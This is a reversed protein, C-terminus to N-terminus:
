RPTSGAPRPPFWCEVRAGGMESSTLTLEGEGKAVLREVIALGLGTSGTGSAGAEILDAEFGPGADDVALTCGGRTAETLALSFGTGPPTHAFVNDIMVDLAAEVEDRSTALEVTAERQLSCPREEDSALASWYDFRSAAVEALDVSSPPDVNHRAKVILDNVEATLANVDQHLKDATATDEIQDLGVRLRTLPTRLRHTLESVMEREDALMKEVRGVLTNFARATTELEPPGAPEVRVNFQGDGLGAAAQALREAPKIVRQAIRDALAVAILVLASGLAVLTAVAPLVGHHLESDPVFVRIAAAREGQIAVATIVEYGGDTPGSISTRQDLALQLRERDAVPHGTEAGDAMVVTIALPGSRNVQEVEATISPLDGTALFPILRAAEARAEDLARDRATLRASLALPVVFAIVITTSIAVFVLILERRM